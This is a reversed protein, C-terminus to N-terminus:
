KTGGTIGHFREAAWVAKRFSKSDVPCFPNNTSFTEKRLKEIQEDSMPQRELEAVRAEAAMGRDANENMAVMCKEVMAAQQAARARLEAIEREMSHMAQSPGLLALPRDEWPKIAETM